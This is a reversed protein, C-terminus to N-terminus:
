FRMQLFFKGEIFHGSLEPLGNLFKYFPLLGPEPPHFPLSDGDPPDVVCPREPLLNRLNEQV